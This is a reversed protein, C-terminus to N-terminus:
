KVMTEGIGPTIVIDVRRNEARGAATKNSTLPKQYGYGVAEVRSDAVTGDSTLYNAVTDAREQSIKKNVSSSGVADTHGQVVVKNADLQKIVDKTKALVPLAGNPIDAHGSKFQVKKLRILVDDGQRYVDAEDKTFSKQAQAIIKNIEADNELRANQGRLMADRRNLNAIAHRKTVIDAAVYEPINSKKAESAIEYLRYSSDTSKTIAKQNEVNNYRDVSITMKANNLDDQAQSWAQPTRKKADLDKAKEIWTESQALNSQTIAGLEVDSYRKQFDATKQPNAKGKEVDKVYSAFDKDTKKLEGSNYKAAGADMAKARADSVASLDSKSKAAETAAQDSYAKAYGAEELIKASSKGSDRLDKAKDLHKQAQAYSDSAFVNAQDQYNQRMDGQIDSIVKGPDSDSPYDYKAVKSACAALAFLAAVLIIKKM